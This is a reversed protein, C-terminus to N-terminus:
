IQLNIDPVLIFNIRGKSNTAIVRHKTVFDKELTSFVLAKDFGNQIEEEYKNLKKKTRIDIPDNM